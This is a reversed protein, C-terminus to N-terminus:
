GEHWSRSTLVAALVAFNAANAPIHFNFDLWGHAMIGACGSAMGALISGTSTASNHILNGAAAKGGAVLVWIGLAAGVLGTEAMFQLFDNHAHSWIKDTAFTRVSPFMTAFSELGGGLIWHQRFLTLTDRWATLRHSAADEQIIQNPKLIEKYRELAEGQDLVLVLGGVLIMAVVLGLVARRGRRQATILLTFVVIAVAISLTGGRSGSLVVAGGMILAMAGWFWRRFLSNHPLLAMGLALPCWLEMLGAFHNRNVYPGFIRGGNDLEWIWYLKASASLYQAVGLLAIACGAMALSGALGRLREPTDFASVAVASLAAYGVWRLWELEADIPAASFKLVWHMATFALLLAVPVALPHDFLPLRGAHIREALWAMLLLWSVAVLLLSAITSTAGFGLPAAVLIVGAGTAVMVSTSSRTTARDEVRLMGADSVLVSM